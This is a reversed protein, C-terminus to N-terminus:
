LMCCFCLIILIFILTILYITSQGFTFIYESYHPQLNIRVAVKKNVINM